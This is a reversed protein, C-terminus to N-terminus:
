SFFFSPDFTSVARQTATMLDDFAKRAQQVSQEAFARMEAPIFDDFKPDAMKAEKRLNITRGVGGVTLTLAMGASPLARGGHVNGTAPMIVM